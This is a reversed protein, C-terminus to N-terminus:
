KSVLRGAPSLTLRKRFSWSKSGDLPLLFISQDFASNDTTWAPLPQLRLSVSLSPGDGEIHWKTGPAVLSNRDGLDGTDGAKLRARVQRIIEAQERRLLVANLRAWSRYLANGWTESFWDSTRGRGSESSTDQMLNAGLNSSALTRVQESTSVDEAVRALFLASDRQIFLRTLSNQTWQIWSADPTPVVYDFMHSAAWAEGQAATRWRERSADIDLALPGLTDPDNPLRAMAGALLSEIEMRIIFSLLVPQEGLNSTMKWGAKIADSAGKTDGQEMRHLADLCILLTVHRVAAASVPNRTPSDQPNFNWVPIERELIGQYLHDLEESHQNLFAAATDAEIVQDQTTTLDLFYYAQRTLGYAEPDTEGQRDQYLSRVGFPELDRTLARLSENEEIPGFKKEFEPMSRGIATWRQEATSRLRPLHIQTWWTLFCGGLLILSLAM